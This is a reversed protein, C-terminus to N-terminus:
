WHCELHCSANSHGHAKAEHNKSDWSSENRMAYCKGNPRRVACWSHLNLLEYDEDDVLAVKGQTLLITKM